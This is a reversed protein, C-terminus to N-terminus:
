RKVRHWITFADWCVCLLALALVEGIGPWGEVDAMKEGTSAEFVIGAFLVIITASM